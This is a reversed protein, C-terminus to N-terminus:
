NIMVLGAKITMMAGAKHTAMAGGETELMMQAKATIMMGELKIGTQDITVKSGGVKLTISQMAELTIAGLSAKTDINGM